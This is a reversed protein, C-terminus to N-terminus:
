AIKANEIIADLQKEMEELVLDLELLRKVHYQVQKDELVRCVDYLVTEFSTERTQAYIIKGRESTMNTQERLIFARLCLNEFPAPSYNGPNRM